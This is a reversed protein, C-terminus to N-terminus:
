SAGSFFSAGTFLIFIKLEYRATFLYLGGGNYAAYRTYPVSLKQNDLDCQTPTTKHNFLMNQKFGLGSDAGDDHFLASKLQFM